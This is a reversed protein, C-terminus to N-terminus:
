RSKPLKAYKRFDPLLASKEDNSLGELARIKNALERRDMMMTGKHETNTKGWEIM